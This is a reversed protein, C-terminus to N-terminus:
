RKPPNVERIVAGNSDSLVLISFKTVQDLANTSLSTYDFAGRLDTYGDKYFVGVSSQATRGYVKVYVKSLPRNTSKESVRLLGYNEIIQVNLSHSYVAQSKQMGGGEISVMVNATHFESPLPVKASTAEKPLTVVDRRNPTVYSFQGLSGLAFPNTSFLLEVDMAYYSVTVSPLNRYEISLQKNDVEFEFSPETALSREQQADRQDRDPAEARFGDIEALQRAVDQFMQAWRPVPYDKYKAAIRAAVAPEDNFFDLYARLYYYQLRSTTELGTPPSKVSPKHVEAKGPKEVDMGPAALRSKSMCADCMDFDPCTACHFIPSGPGVATRCLDCVGGTAYNRGIRSVDAYRVFGHPHQSSQVLAASYREYDDLPVEPIRGFIQQAEPVRDQLLMYYTLAMLDEADPKPKYSLVDLFKNYQAEFTTNLIKRESGLRHARANVLPSYELHRYRNDDFPDAKVLSCGLVPGLKSLFGPQLRIWQAIHAPSRHLLGYALLTPDAVLRAELAAMVQGFVTSDRLRWAIRALHVKSPSLNQSGLYELLEQTSAEQSIYAWSNTDVTSRRDVVRLLTPPAAAVVRELKAAHAAFHAFTGAAPFYFHYTLRECGNPALDVPRGSTFFGNAVPMAGVPIQLLVTVRQQVRSMNTIVVRCGYCKNRLFEDSIYKDVTEGNDVTTPEAPDFFQESLLVSGDGEVAACPRIEKHFVVAPSAAVMRWRGDEITEQHASATPPLDLVALALLMEHENATAVAFHSSVFAGGDSSAFDLWFKNPGVLSASIAPEKKYYYNESLEQTKDLAQYFQAQTTRRRIDEEMEEEEERASEAGEVSEFFCDRDLDRRSRRMKKSRSRERDRGSSRDRSRHRRRDRDRSRSRSRSRSPERRRVRSYRDDCAEEECADDECAEEDGVSDYSCCAVGCDSDDDGNNVTSTTVMTMTMPSMRGLLRENRVKATRGKVAVKFIHSLTSAAMPNAQVEDAILRRIAAAASPVRQGLLIREFTNLRRLATPSVFEALSEGDAGLLWRDVFTKEKKNALYPAVVRSFFDADKKYIFYNLEHCAFKSYNDLKEGASMQHWDLLFKFETLVSSPNLTSYLDFVKPLSDYVEWEATAMNGIEFTAGAAVVSVQQRETFHANADLAQSILRLDRFQPPTGPPLGIQRFVLQDRDVAVARVVSGAGLQSRPVSVVGNADPRLNHLAVSGSALFDLNADFAGGSTDAQYGGGGAYGRPASFAASATPAHKAYAEGGLAQQTKTETTQVAWPNLLLSPRALTNGPLKPAYKRDLIYRYEEGLKRGSVYHSQNPSFVISSPEPVPPTGLSGFISFDPYFVSRILHVRTSRTANVLQLKVTDADAAVAAIQLPARNNSELYRSASCVFGGVTRGATVKVQISAEQPYLLRLQYDGPTLNSIVLCGGQLAISSFCDRVISSRRTEFLSVTEPSLAAGMFPVRIAESASAQISSPYTASDNVLQWRRNYGASSYGLWTVSELKGLEIRGAADTQLTTNAPQELLMNKVSLQVIRNPKPEGTKGLVLLAYGDASQVLHPQELRESGDIENLRVTASTSLAVPTHSQSVLRVKGSLTVDVRRTNEPVLFEQVSEKDDFLEFNNVVKQTPVNDQDVTAITLTIEELIKVSAAAGNVFLRPRVAVKATNLKLLSERDVYIGANLSYTEALLRFTQLSSFGGVTLVLKQQPRPANSYPVVIESSGTTPKYAHGDLWVSIPGYRLPDAAVQAADQSDSIPENRENILQFVHGAVSLREVLRIDGKRIVARSSVGNGIFEVVFLGRGSLQPLDFRRRVRRMPPESYTYVAEHNAILGDLNIDTAVQQQHQRYYAGSDIEFLKVLLTPVNKVDVEVSVAESPEYYKRASSVVFQVEVRDRLAQQSHAPLAHLWRDPNPDGMLLRTEALIPDVFNNALYHSFPKTSDRSRFFHELYEKIIGTDDNVPRLLGVAVHMEAQPVRQQYYDNRLTENVYGRSRPLQLYSMFLEEDLDGRDARLRLAHFLVCLRYSNYAPLLTLVFEWLRTIYAEREAQNVEIDVDNSPALRRICAEIFRGNDLLDKRIAQLQKLQELTLQNHVGLDGFSRRSNSSLDANILQVLNPVDPTTVRQLLETVQDPSLQQRALYHLALPTFRRVQLPQQSGFAAYVSEDLRSPHTAPSAELFSADRAHDLNVKLENRLWEIIEKKGDDNKYDFALLNYRAQLQEWKSNKYHPRNFAKDFEGLWQKIADDFKGGQNNNLLNLITYFFHNESKPVLKELEKARDGLAFGELFETTM